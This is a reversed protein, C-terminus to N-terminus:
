MHDLIYPQWLYITKLRFIQNPIWALKNRAMSEDSIPTFRDEGENKNSLILVYWKITNLQDNFNWDGGLGKPTKRLCSYRTFLDPM